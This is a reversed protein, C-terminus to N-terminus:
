ENSAGQMYEVFDIGSDFPFLNEAEYGILSLFEKQANEGAKDGDFATLFGYDNAIFDKIVKILNEDLGKVNGTSEVSIFPVSYLLANVANKLGEGVVIYKEKQAIHNVLIEFPYIFDEGRNNQNKYYYKMGQKELGTQPDKPRYTVMDVIKNKSDRLIISPAKWYTSFGLIHKYIYNVKDKYIIDLSACEFLKHCNSNLFIAETTSLLLGNADKNETTLSRPKYRQMEQLEKSAFYAMKSFDIEKKEKPERTALKTERKEVSYTDAGAMSKIKAIAENQSLNDMIQVLDICDGGSGTGRDYFKQSDEFFDLSSTKEDRLLNQKARYRTGHPKAFEFGYNEALQIIDIKSKIEELTLSNEM